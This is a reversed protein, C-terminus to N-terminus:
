EGEWTVPFETGELVGAYYLVRESESKYVDICRILEDWQESEYLEDIYENRCDYRAANYKEEATLLSCSADYARYRLGSKDYETM